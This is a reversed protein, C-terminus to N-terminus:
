REYVECKDKPVYKKRNMGTAVIFCDIFVEKVCTVDNCLDDKFDYFYKTAVKKQGIIIGSFTEDDNMRYAVQELPVGYEQWWLNYGSQEAKPEDCNSYVPIIKQKQLYAECFVTKGFYKNKSM